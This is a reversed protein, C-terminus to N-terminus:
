ETIFTEGKGQYISIICWINLYLLLIAFLTWGLIPVILCLIWSYPSTYIEKGPVELKDAAMCLSQIVFVLFMISVPFFCCIVGLVWYIVNAYWADRRYNNLLASLIIGILSNGVLFILVWIWWNKRKLLDMNMRRKRTYVKKIM